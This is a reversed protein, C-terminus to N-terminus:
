IVTTVEAVLRVRLARVEFRFDENWVPAFTKYRVNTRKENSAFNIEVYPDTYMDGQLNRDMVPLDRAEVVRVKVTSPMRAEAQACSAARLAKIKLHSQCVSM